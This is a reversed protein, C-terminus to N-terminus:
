SNKKSMTILLAVDSSTMIKQILWWVLFYLLFCYVVRLWFVAKQTAPLIFKFTVCLMKKKLYCGSGWQQFDKTQATRPKSRRWITLQSLHHRHMCHYEQAIPDVSNSFLHPQRRPVLKTRDEVQSWLWFGIDISWQRRVRRGRSTSKLGILFRDVRFSQLQFKLSSIELHAKVLNSTKGDNDSNEIKLQLVWSNYYLNKLYYICKTAAFVQYSWKQTTWFM